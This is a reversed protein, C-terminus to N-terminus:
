NLVKAAAEKAEQVAEPPADEVSIIRLGPIGAFNAEVAAIADEDTEARVILSAMEDFSITVLKYTEEKEITM